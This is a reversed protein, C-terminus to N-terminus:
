SGQLACPRGPPPPRGRPSGAELKREGSFGANGQQFLAPGSSAAARERLRTGNARSKCFSNKFCGLCVDGCQFGSTLM